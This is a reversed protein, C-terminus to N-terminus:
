GMIFQTIEKGIKAKEVGVNNAKMRAVKVARILTDINTLRRSKDAVSLMGSQQTTSYKGIKEDENWAQVQAPHEKTADYMVKSKIVKETKYTSVAHATKYKDEGADSDKEWEIGPQLTPIARLMERVAKLKSEMGLLYTAPLGKGITKGNVILDAVAKQNTQEKQLVADYYSEIHGFVYNLKEDVTTVLEKRDQVGGENENRVEDFMKLTKVHGLFRDPKKTFTDIAEETVKKAAGQLDGEVALLEHLKGM